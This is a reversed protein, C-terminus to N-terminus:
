IKVSSLVKKRTEEAILERKIKEREQQEKQQIDRKLNAEYVRTVQPLWGKFYNIVDQVENPSADILANNKNFRFNVPGKGWVASHSGMNQFAIIWQGNVEHNLKITLQGRDWDFSIIKM